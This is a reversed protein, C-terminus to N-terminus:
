TSVSSYYQWLFEDSLSMGDFVGTRYKSYLHGQGTMMGGGMYDMEVQGFSNNYQNYLHMEEATLSSTNIAGLAAGGVAAGGGVEALGGLYGKGGFTNIDKANMTGGDVEVPFHLLPVDQSFM